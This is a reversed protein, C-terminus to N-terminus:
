RKHRLNPKLGPMSGGLVDIRNQAYRRTADTDAYTNRLNGRQQALIAKIQPLESPVIQFELEGVPEELVPTESEGTLHADRVVEYFEAHHPLEPDVGRYRPANVGSYAPLIEGDVERFTEHAM